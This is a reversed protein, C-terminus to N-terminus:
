VPVVSSGNRQGAWHYTMFGLTCPPDNSGGCASALVDGHRILCEPTEVLETSLEQNVSAM